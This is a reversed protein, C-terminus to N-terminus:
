NQIFIKKAYTSKNSIINIVYAGNILRAAIERTGSGGLEEKYVLQGITNYIVMTAKEGAALKSNVMIRGGSSYVNFLAENAAAATASLEKLSFVVAFRNNHDGAALFLRYRPNRRLDQYVNATADYLYIHLAPSINQIDPTNFNIWGEKETTLGLPQVTVSDRPYAMARISVKADDAAVTYLSPVAANDNMLKLADYKKDFNKNARDEMYIVAADLVKEGDFAASIRILQRAFSQFAPALDTTRISNNFTLQGTVPFSGNSVHVFFGQMSPIIHGAVGNSSIGNIYSSYSGKYQDTTGANFYYVANDINTRVWGTSADWDIPSPYPNGVLNFGQTYPQNHNYLLALAVTNNTVVGTVDVTKPSASAGFNAAYGEGPHLVGSTATYKIWGLSPQNEDHRYFTPFSANLDLDDAFENVTAAQFPSGFYKYGFGSALYRQVTVNGTVDGAGSGDILATQAPTSLLTLYGGTNFQGSAVLLIAALDLSGSLTVGANNNTTLYEVLNGAFAAAPITQAATGNMEIKGSSATFTGSNSINGGIKLTHGNINLTGATVTVNNRVTLDITQNLTVNSSNLTLNYLPGTSIVKMIQPVSTLVNGVQLTGGTFGPGTASLNKYALNEGATGGANQIIINGGSMNFTCGAADMNFPAIGAVTSGQTNVTMTGGKMEMAWGAGPNSIASALNLNGETIAFYASPKPIVINNAANGMNITGGSVKVLGAITWNMNGSNITGADAWLGATAPILFNGTTIDSTFPTISIGTSNLNFSGNMLSLFGAPASFGAATVDLYNGASTGMNLTVSNFKTIAGSGGITQNSSNIFVTNCVSNADTHLDLTGNNIINGSVTLTHTADSAAAVNLIAGNAITINKGTTITRAVASNGIGATGRTISLNNNITLDTLIVSGGTGAADLNFYTIPKVTQDTAGNYRVTSSNILANATASGSISLTGAIGTTDNSFAKEGTNSLVLNNYNFTAISQAQEGNFDITSGTVTYANTGPTFLGAIGVTGSSALTRSGTSSSFLNSYNYAPIIQTINGTFGVTGGTIAVTGTVAPFGAATNLTGKKFTLDSYVTLSRGAQVTLQLSDNNVTLHKTVAAIDVNITDAGALLVDDSATPVGNTNWNAADSWKNTGAGGDWTKVFVSLEGVEFDGFATLALAATSASSTTGPNPYTWVGNNYEGTVFNATAAGADVDTTAFNFTAAYDSFIIGNNSLTWFRNATKAANIISSSINPHDGATTSVALDGATTINTFALAVPAYTTTDGTEFTKVTNGTVINKKLRGNVWGTNQAAGTVTGASPQILFNNGTQVQGKTFGLVNNVTTNSTLIVAATAKNVTLNNFASATYITQTGGGNLTFTSSGSNITGNNTINGSVTHTYSGANLISGSNITLNNTITWASSPTIGAVNTNAIVIDHFSAPSGAVTLAGAGGFVVTGTSSFNSGLNVTAATAPIFNLGGSSTITGSNTVAGKIYHTSNGGNFSAGSGVALSYLITWDVSPNIGGTNNINLYGFLPASTSNLVPSVSGNFNVTLAVTQVANILSLTQVVNGTYTTTGLTYLVGSNVLDGNMTTHISSGGTLSGTSTINLLTNFTVDNLITYSGFVTVQNFITNGAINKATGSCIVTSGSPTFTGSNIWNGNLTLVQSGADFNSGSEVTLDGNVTIASVLTKAGANRLILNGFTAGFIFQPSTGDAIVTSSNTLIGTTFNLPSNNAGVIFTASDNITITGGSIDRNCNFTKINFTGSTMTLDGKILIDGTLIASSGVPKDIVINNFTTATITQTGAGNFIIHAGTAVYDGNNNWNGGVHLMNNNHLMAGSIINVNGAINVVANNDLEGSAITLNGAISITDNIIALAAAKNVTLNYYNIKGIDQNNIGNYTVTGTGAIFIGSTFTYNDTILLNGAGSFTINAGGSQTLSGDVTVTGTSITTNIAHGNIGDSLSLDGNVTVAQANANITHIINSSWTGHIDGSILSGGSAMSLTVAQASGFNINKVTVANSITPQNTFAVTGLNVIDSAAPPRSASGQVVTWNVATNWDTSVSGNWQVVNSNDSCTWRNTVGTLGTQEVYNSTTSNGSKGASSWTSGSYNWMTMSSETNGNLEDDEYHLRLKAGAYTGAPVSVNYVRSISGNFPFDSIPGETVSVTVSNILSPSTFTITNDPGEFAYALGTAFIHNRRINGMIIGNGTRTATITITDAETFITGLTMNVTAVTINNKLLIGTTSNTNNITLINFTTAGTITTNKNGLFQITGTGATFSGYNNWNAYVSHTFAGPIFTTGAGITLNRNVIIGAAATKSNGNSLILDNYTIGNVAQAGTGNFNVTNPISTSVDLVGGTVTMANAIGLISNASLQLSTGNIIVNFLNATGSLISTGTFTAAGASATFSGNVLLGSSIFIDVTASVSGTVSLVSFNKSGSGMITKSIGSMTITGTSGTFSGSVMLNGSLIFSAATSVTGSITLNDISISPGSITTGTGTMLVAGGSAQSFSGAGTTALSGTLSITGTSFNVSSATVTVNNFNQTGSGSVASGSGAFIITGTNGNFTGSNGWNGSITHTYSGGNFTTSTGISVNGSIAIASAATYSVAAGTGLTSVLNGVITLATAPFTKVAAGTSSSLKLNGYLQNAVTQNTGAYEVTSAVVLTNTTYNAPYTNTGGIKLVANNAVTLTGGAATRNATFAGLDFTGNSVSLNGSVAINATLTVTSGVNDIILNNFTTAFTGGILQATTNNFIVTGNGATFATTASNNTWNGKVTIANNDALLSGATILLNNNVAVAIPLSLGNTNSVTLNYFSSIGSFTQVGSTGNFNVTGTNTVTGNNTLTGAINLTGAGTITLTTGTNLTLSNCSVSSSITPMRAATTAIVVNTSSTPVTGTCWNGAVAWDTSVSGTWQGAPNVVLIAANSENTAVYPNPSVNNVSSLVANRYIYYTGASNFPAAAASPTFTAGTAGAITTRTGTPTTSYSWQYGTGSLTIGTPLTGYINGSIATGSNGLCINQTTNTSLTNSFLLTLNQFAVENDGSSEFYEYLLSSAGNLSILVSPKLGFSQYNWNNYPMGGDITLRGGDDSGLDVMYLGRKSSNMRYKVSFTETYISSTLSNSIVNFCNTPGGFSENFNETEMYHGIYSNFNIGDYVHGIWSDTGAANQDDTIDLFPNVTVTTLSVCGNSSKANLSYTGAALGTFIASSQYTGGNLSYTYPPVGGSAIATITGTSGGACTETATGSLVPASSCSAVHNGTLATSLAGESVAFVKWYYTAGSTLGSQASSTANAATQSVFSYNVGDTSRYIVFGTENSSLDTWNLTMGANTVATFTLNGPAAPVPSTFDYVKGTVPKNNVNAETTSSANTGTNNVSLFNGSGTATGTIGISASASLPSLTESRYVFEVKGSTEYMKVQFSIVSGSALYYWKVNLYQVTFVRSGTAGTTKYTVNTAATIDLDDWLPAIVPRPAGGTTLSNTYLYDTQITGLSLWGNTSAAVNTYRSGMYWFDFGIPILDTGGDDTDGGLWTVANPTSLATFTGGFSAFTYNTITQATLRTTTCCFLVVILLIKCILRSKRKM